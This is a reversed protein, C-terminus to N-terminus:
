RTGSRGRHFGKSLHGRVNWCRRPEWRPAGGRRFLVGEEDRRYDCRCRVRPLPLPIPPSPWLSDPLHMRRGASRSCLCPRSNSNAQKWLGTEPKTTGTSARDAQHVAEVEAPSLYDISSNRRSPNYFGKIFRFVAIQAEAKTAFRPREIPQWELTAFFSECMANDLADSATGTSPRRRRPLPASRWHLINRGSIAIICADKSKRSAVAMNLADLVLRTKRDHSFAWGM